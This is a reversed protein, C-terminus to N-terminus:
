QYSKGFAIEATLEMEIRQFDYTIQQGREYEPNNSARQFLDNSWQFSIIETEKVNQISTSPIASCNEYELFSLAPLYCSSLSIIADLVSNQYSVLIDIVTQLYIGDDGETLCYAIFDTERIRPM